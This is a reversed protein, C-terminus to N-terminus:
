PEGRELGVVRYGDGIRDLHVRLPGTADARLEVVVYGDGGTAIPGVCLEAGVTGPTTPLAGTAGLVHATVKGAVAMGGELRADVVCLRGTEDIRPRALPSLRTLYRALLKERRGLLATVLEREVLPTAIKASQVLAIVMEPTIRALIRAGWAADDETVRTYPGYGYGTRYRDPTFSEATFYGLTAGARSLRPNRWPRPLFGLTVLEEFATSWEVEHAHGRRRSVRDRNSLAGLCDDFDVQYHKVYGPADLSPADWIDMSNQERADYHGIWAGFVYSGRLERRDEHPIVDNPDDPRVGFDRWPGLPTGPLLQSLNGRVAGTVDKLGYALARRLMAATFPVKAGIFNEAAADSAILFASTPIYVVRACATNFGAAAYVRSGVLDAVSPREGQGGGDPKFFYRQGTAHEIIFGPTADDPRGSVITWPGAPDPAEDDCAGRVFAALDESVRDIRNHFWSSDAVEDLATVNAARTQQRVALVDLLPRFFTNDVSDWVERSEYIEPHPLFARTDPDVTMPAQNPFRGMSGGCAALSIAVASAWRILVARQM